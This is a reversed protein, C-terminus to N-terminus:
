FHLYMYVPSTGLVNIQLLLLLLLVFFNNVNQCLSEFHWCKISIFHYKNGGLFM